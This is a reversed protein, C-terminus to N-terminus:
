QMFVTKRLSSDNQKFYKRNFDRLADLQSRYLSPWVTPTEVGIKNEILRTLVGSIITDHFKPPLMPVDSDASLRPVRKEFWYRLRYENDVAPYWTMKNTEAGASSYDKVTRFRAPTGTNDGDHYTTDKEIEDYTIEKMISEENWSASLVREVDKDDTNLYLGKHLIKGGSIYETFDTTNVNLTITTTTPVADVEFARDNVETMGAVSHLTIKNGVALGHAEETTIVGPDAQTIGTIVSSSKSTLSDDFDILWYLPYLDDAVIVENLYVMNIMYKILTDISGKSKKSYSKIQNKITVYTLYDAM